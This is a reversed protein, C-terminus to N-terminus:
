EEEQSPLPIQYKTFEKLSVSYRVLGEWRNGKEDILSVRWYKNEGQETPIFSLSQITTTDGFETKLWDQTQTLLFDQKQTCSTLLLGFLCSSILLTRKLQDRCGM